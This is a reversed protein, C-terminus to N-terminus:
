VYRIYESESGGVFLARGNFKQHPFQTPFSIVETLNDDIAELNVKWKFGSDTKVLNKM